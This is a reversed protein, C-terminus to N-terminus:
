LGSKPPADWEEEDNFEIGVLSMPDQASSGGAPAAGLMKGVDRNNIPISSSSSRDFSDLRQSPRVPAM